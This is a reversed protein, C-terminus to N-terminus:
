LALSMLYFILAGCIVSPFDKLAFVIPDDNMKGRHAFIWLRSIWFLLVLCAPWMFPPNSYLIRIEPSNIYLAFVLVSLYGSATGFSLLLNIDEVHYGRATDKETSALKLKMLETYRKVIALSLFLFMSFSLLWFSLEVLIAAAGAVIRITYLLALTVVDVMVLHKLIFSYALTLLYYVFLVLAFSKSTFLCLAAAVVLLLPAAIIGHTLPLTGAAFPRHKKTTHVRDDNLDLLDNLLYVSSACCSFAVFAIICAFLKDPYAIMHATFLPVFILSNKVWQHVRLAKIAATLGSPEPPMHKELETVAQAKVCLDDDGVVIAAISSQWVALDVNANGAYAFGREGFENVLAAQKNSGSLNTTGDSALVQDFLGTHNSIADAYRQHSATALVLKRGSQKESCLYELLQQNYPLLEVPVKVRKAIQEKLHAKGKILWLLSIFIYIINSKILILYSEILLDSRILTGDLDVVLPNRMPKM